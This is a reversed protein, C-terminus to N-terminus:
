LLNWVALQSCVKGNQSFEARGFTRAPISCGVLLVRMATKLQKLGVFSIRRGYNTEEATFMKNIGLFAFADRWMELLTCM